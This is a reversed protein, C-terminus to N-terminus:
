TKHELRLESVDMWQGEAANLRSVESGPLFRSFRRECDEIFARAEPLGAESGHEGEAALLVSTNMARFELTEM